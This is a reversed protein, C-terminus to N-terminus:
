CRDLQGVQVALPVDGSRKVAVRPMATPDNALRTLVGAGGEASEYFLITKRHDLSPLPEAALEAEELQFTGEIGRKLAYQLTAMQENTLRALPRVVLVNKRDEVFPIIRQVVQADDTNADNVEDPAQSDKTWVGTAVDINFGISAVEDKRRRWGLNVRWVTAAPGFKAEM